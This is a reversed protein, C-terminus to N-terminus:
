IRRSHVTRNEVLICSVVLVGKFRFAKGCYECTFPMANSHIRSHEKLTSKERFTKGCVACQHPKIDTHVLDHKKLQMPTKFRYNQNVIRSSPM